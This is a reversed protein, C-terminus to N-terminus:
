AANGIIPQAQFYQLTAPVPIQATWTKGGDHTLALTWDNGNPVFSFFLIDQSTPGLWIEQPNTNIAQPRFASLPAGHRMLAAQTRRLLDNPPHIRQWTAMDNHTVALLPAPAKSTGILGYTTTGNTALESIFIGNPVTRWTLGGDFSVDDYIESFGPASAIGEPQRAGGQQYGQAIRLVVIDADTDDVVMECQGYEVSPVAVHRVQAGHSHTIWVTVYNTGDAQDCGYATDGDSPAFVGGSPLPQNQWKLALAPLPSPTPAPVATRNNGTTMQPQSAAGCAELLVMCVLSLWILYQRM